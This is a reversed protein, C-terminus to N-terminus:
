IEAKLLNVELWGTVGGIIVGIMCFVLWVQQNNPKKFSHWGVM